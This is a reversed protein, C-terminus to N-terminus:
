AGDVRAAIGHEQPPDVRDSVLARFQGDSLEDNSVQERLLRLLEFYDGTYHRMGRAPEGGIADGENNLGEVDRNYRDEWTMSRRIAEQLREHYETMMTVLRHVHQRLEPLFRLAELQDNTLPGTFTRPDLADCAKELSDIIEPPALDSM